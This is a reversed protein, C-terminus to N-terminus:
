TAHDPIEDIGGFQGKQIQPSISVFLAFTVFTLGNLGAHTKLYVNLTGKKKM